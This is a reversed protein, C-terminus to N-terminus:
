SIKGNELARSFQDPRLHDPLGHHPKESNYARVTRKVERILEQKTRIRRHDLYNRKTTRNICECYASERAHGSYSHRM